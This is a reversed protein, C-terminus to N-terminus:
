GLVRSLGGLNVSLSFSLKVGKAQATFEQSHETWERRLQARQQLLTPRRQPSAAATSASDRRPFRRAQADKTDHLIPKVMAQVAPVEHPPINEYVLKGDKTQVLFCDFRYAHLTLAHIDAMDIQALLPMLPKYNQLHWVAANTETLMIFNDDAGLAVLRPRDIWNGDKVNNQIAAVLKGPLNNWLYSTKDHVFFSENYPGLACRIHAVNRNSAGVFQLLEPPLGAADVRDQGSADRWTVLFSDEFGLTVHHLLTLHPSALLRTLQHPLRTHERRSRCQMWHSGRQGFTFTSDCM